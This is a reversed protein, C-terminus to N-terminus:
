KWARSEKANRPRSELRNMYDHLTRVVALAEADSINIDRMAREAHSMTHLFESAPWGLSTHVLQTLQPLKMEASASLARTLLLRLRQYSVGVAASGAQASQYLDGLTDVFELPSLRSEAAPVWIPGSHRSFTFLLAAFVVILQVGAWPLPTQAFYSTLSRREGHFYEDWLIRSGSPPGVSNLFLGLNGKDRISGNSLPSSIAWWIVEGKGFKYSVVTPNGPEGYVALQSPKLTNWKDPAVLTIEPAKRNLPSPIAAHSVIPTLDSSPIPEASADPAFAAGSAGMAILRGGAAVFRSIAARDESSASDTPEALILTTEAASAVEAADSTVTPNPPLAQPPSDWREVRYGSQQLLLFAAKAGLWEASYSSPTGITDQREGPRILYTLGLLLFMVIVAGIVLRRDGTDLVASM